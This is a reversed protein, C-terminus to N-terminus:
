FAAARKAGLREQVVCATAPWIYDGSTTACLILDLDSAALGADALARQAAVVALDSTATEADAVRRERIGTRSTIWADNTDVIRALDDNTLICDPVCMGLGFIGAHLVDSVPAAYGDTPKDTM